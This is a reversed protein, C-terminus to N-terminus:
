MSSQWGVTLANAGDDLGHAVDVRLMGAAGPIRVRLGGGADVHRVSGIGSQRRMATAADAFLAAGIRVLGPRRLWRETEANAYVLTRGFASAGGGDVTGGALLPHARLLPRRAYGEGAGPWLDLPADDSV